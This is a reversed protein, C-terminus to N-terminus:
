QTVRASSNALQKIEARIQELLADNLKTIRSGTLVEDGNEYQCDEARYLKSLKKRRM